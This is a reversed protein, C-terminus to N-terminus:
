AADGPGMPAPAAPAMVPTVPVPALAGNGRPPPAGMQDLRDHVGSVHDHLMNMREHMAM